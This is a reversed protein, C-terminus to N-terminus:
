WTLVHVQSPSIYGSLLELYTSQMAPGGTVTHITFHGSLQQYFAAWAEAYRQMFDKGGWKKQLRAVHEPAFFLSADVDRPRHGSEADWDTAGIMWLAQFASGCHTAIRSLAAGNGAFDLVILPQSKPLKDIEDYSLVDDYCDFSSTFSMNQPSTLGTIRYSAQRLSRHHSLLFAAGLATKSSASTLVIHHSHFTSVAEDLVFSTMFLPRFNMQWAENDPRYAPDAACRQYQDYVPHISNRQPHVDSLTHATISDPKIILHSAFPLYGYLREGEPLDPHRSAAVEAFGWVPIVGEHETGPFFGWYGMKEGLAAYTINNASFGFNSVRLLVEGDKLNDDDLEYTELRSSALKEREVLFRTVTHIAM